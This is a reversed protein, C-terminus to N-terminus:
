LIRILRNPYITEILKCKELRELAESILGKDANLRFELDEINDLHIYANESELILKMYFLIYTNGASLKELKKIRKDNFFDNRIEIEGGVSRWRANNNTM